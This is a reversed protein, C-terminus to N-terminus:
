NKFVAGLGFVHSAEQKVDTNSEWYEKFHYRSTLETTGGVVSAVTHMYYILNKFFIKLFFFFLEKKKSFAM